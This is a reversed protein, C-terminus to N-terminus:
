LQDLLQVRKQIINTLWTSVARANIVKCRFITRTEPCSYLCGVLNDIFSFIKTYSVLAEKQILSFTLFEHNYALHYKLTWADIHRQNGCYSLWINSKATVKFTVGWDEFGLWNMNRWSHWQGFNLSINHLCITSLYQPLHICLQVYQCASLGFCLTQAVGILTPPMFIVEYQLKCLLGCSFLLYLTVNM